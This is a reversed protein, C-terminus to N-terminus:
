FPPALVPSIFWIVQYRLPADKRERKSISLFASSRSTLRSIHFRPLGDGGTRVRVGQLITMCATRIEDVQKHFSAMASELSDSEPFSVTAFASGDSSLLAEPTADKLPINLDFSHGGVNPKPSPSRLSVFREAAANGIRLLAQVVESQPPSGSMERACTQVNPPGAYEASVLADKEMPQLWTFMDSANPGATGPWLLATEVVRSEGPPLEVSNWSSDMYIKVDGNAYGSLGIFSYRIPRDSSNHVEVKWQERPNRANIDLLRRMSVFVRLSELAGADSRAVHRCLREAFARVSLAPDVFRSTYEIYQKQLGSAAAAPRAQGWDYGGRATGFHIATDRQQTRLHWGTREVAPDRILGALSKPVNRLTAVSNLLERFKDDSPSGAGSQLIATSVVYAAMVDAECESYTSGDNTSGDGFQRLHWLEHAAIFRLATSRQAAHSFSSSIHDILGRGVTIGGGKEAFASNGSRIRLDPTGIEWQRATEELFATDEPSWEAAAAPNLTALLGGACSVFLSLRLRM